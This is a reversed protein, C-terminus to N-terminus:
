ESPACLLVCCAAAGLVGGRTTGDAVNPGDTVSLRSAGAVVRPGVAITVALGAPIADSAATFGVAADPVLHFIPTTPRLNAASRGRHARSKDSCPCTKKEGEKSKKWERREGTAVADAIIIAALWMMSFHLM